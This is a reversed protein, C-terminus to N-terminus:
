QKYKIEHYHYYVNPVPLEVFEDDYGGFDNNPDLYVVLIAAFKNSAVDLLVMKSILAYLEPVKAQFQWWFSPFTSTTPFGRLRLALLM